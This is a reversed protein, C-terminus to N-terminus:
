LGLVATSNSSPADTVDDPGTVSDSETTDGAPEEPGNDTVDPSEDSVPADEVLPISFLDYDPDLTVTNLARLNSLSDVSNELLVIARRLTDLEVAQQNVQHKLEAYQGPSIFGFARAYDGVCDGCLYFTGFFEFDFRADAFGEPHEAKGCLACCGPSAVPNPLRVVRASPDSPPLETM